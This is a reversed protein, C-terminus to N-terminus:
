CRRLKFSLSGAAWSSPVLVAAFLLIRGAAQCSGYDPGRGHCAAIIPMHAPVEGRIAKRKKKADHIRKAVKQQEVCTQSMGAVAWVDHDDGQLQRRALGRPLVETSDGRGPQCRCGFLPRPHAATSGVPRRRAAAPMNHLKLERWAALHILVEM